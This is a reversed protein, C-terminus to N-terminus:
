WFFFIITAITASISMALWYRKIVKVDQLRKQELKNLQPEVNTTYYDQLEPSIEKSM